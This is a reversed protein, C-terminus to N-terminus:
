TGARAAEIAPYREGAVADRSFLSELFGIDEPPLKVDAAAANEIVYKPRKTGPIPVITTKDDNKALLWSLAIQAPTLGRGKAFEVLRAVLARNHAAATGHFRPLNSRIDSPAFAEGNVAGTLFARGLPSFPVFTVGLERCVQLVEDEPERYWLSYESQLAAIPHVANAERLTAPAVESLGLARVKGSKVLRAMAGVSEAIPVAPDRRHMYYLDITEVQLRKLSAECASAIHSPSNDVGPKGGPGAPLSGFKTAITIRGPGAKKIFRGILEENQGVGYLDATDFFDMGRDLAAHMAEFSQTEDASGYAGSMGVCGLGLASVTIGTRGLPLRYMV